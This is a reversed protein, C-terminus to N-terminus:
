FYKTNYYNLGTPRGLGAYRQGKLFRQQYTNGNYNPAEGTYGDERGREQKRKV